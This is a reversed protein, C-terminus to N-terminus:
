DCGCGAKREIGCDDAVSGAACAHGDADSLTAGAKVIRAIPPEAAGGAVAGTADASVTGATGDGFRAAGAEAGGGLRAPPAGSACPSSAYQANHRRQWIRLFNSRRRAARLTGPAGSCSAISASCMSGPSPSLGRSSRDIVSSSSKIPAPLEVCVPRPPRFPRRLRAAACRRRAIAPASAVSDRFPVTRVHSSLVTFGHLGHTLGQSRERSSPSMSM